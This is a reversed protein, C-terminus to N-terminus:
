STSCTARPLIIPAGSMNGNLKLFAIVSGTFTLAGIPSGLSLEILSQVNSTARRASATARRRTSARGGRGARRGPRRALPLLRGAAADGDDQDRQAVVAGIRRRGRHRSSSPSPSPTSGGATWAMWLTTVIAIAMGIIGNNAGQRSTEPSSLGRLALIFLVGSALYLLAAINANMAVEGRKRRPSEKKKYMALMRKTVLFGGFINVSALAVAVGGMGKSLWLDSTMEQGAGAVAAILAGVIIVSSIANTVAMLPTHLAPTVSWVVYYGVFIALVFIALRFILPDTRTAATRRSPPRPSPSCGALILAIRKMMRSTGTSGAKAGAKGGEKRGKRSEEQRAQDQRGELGQPHLPHRGLDDGARHRRRSLDAAARPGSALGDALVVRRSDPRHDDPHVRDAQVHIMRREAVPSDSRRRRSGCGQRDRRGVQALLSKDEGTLGAAPRSPQPRLARIRGRRHARSPQHLRHGERRQRRRSEDPKSLPCNGGQTVALDVVVSGPRMSKVMAETVLVPAPRGPILATTVVIDQKAIHAAVLEAQKKQYEPSMPKAYGATTEADKFEEDEVAIFKAGLSAVQEKAAPRVDTASVIGGLRRATAIAQLGAVGAGMVFIKAAAVTGAATMMMAAPSAPRRLASARPRCTLGPRLTMAFRLGHSEVWAIRDPTAPGPQKIRRVLGQGKALRAPRAGRARRAGRKTIKGYGSKPLADWFFVRKPLKYRAVKGDMWSLLEQEDLPADPRLVCVAVGVEGWTRDPVGLMAVEAIAPHTLMKEETERPYVNSGGSIYM